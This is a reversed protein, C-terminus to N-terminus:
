PRRPKRPRGNNYAMKPRPQGIMEYYRHYIQWVADSNIDEGEAQLTAAAAGFSQAQIDVLEHVRQALRDRKPPRRLWVSVAQAEETNLNAHSHLEAQVTKLLKPVFTGRVNSHKRGPRREPYVEIRGGVLQRFLSAARYIADQGLTGAAGDELLQGLNKLVDRVCDSTIPSSQAAIASRLRAQESQLAAKEALASRVKAKM